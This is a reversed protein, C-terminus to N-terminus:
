WIRGYPTHFSNSHAHNTTPRTNTAHYGRGTTDTVSRDSRECCQDNSKQKGGHNGRPRHRSCVDWCRWAETEYHHSNAGALACPQVGQVCLPLRGLPVYRRFSHHRFTTTPWTATPSRAWKATGSIIVPLSIRSTSIM